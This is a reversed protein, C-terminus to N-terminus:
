SSTFLKQQYFSVAPQIIGRNPFAIVLSCLSCLVLSNQSMIVLLLRNIVDAIFLLKGQGAQQSPAAPHSRTYRRTNVVNILNYLRAPFVAKDKRHKPFTAYCHQTVWQNRWLSCLNASGDCVFDKTLTLTHLLDACMWHVHHTFPREGWFKFDRCGSHYLSWAPSLHHTSPLQRM